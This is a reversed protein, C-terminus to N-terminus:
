FSEGELNNNQNSMLKDTHDKAAHAMSERFEIKYEPELLFIFQNNSSVETSKIFYIPRRSIAM